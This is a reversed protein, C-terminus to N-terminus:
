KRVKKIFIDPRDSIIGDVGMEMLREVDAPRNVTWPVVKFGEQHALRVMEADTTRYEPQFWRCDLLRAANVASRADVLAGTIRDLLLGRSLHPAEQVALQLAEPIFSTMVVREELGFEAVLEVVPEVVDLEKIELDFYLERGLAAFLQRLLPVPEGGGMDCSQLQEADLERLPQWGAGPTPVREDHSLAPAGGAALRVDCEVWRIGLALSNEFAAM